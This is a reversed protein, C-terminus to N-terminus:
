AQWIKANRQTAMASSGIAADSRRTADDMALKSKTQEEITGITSATLAKNDRIYNNNANIQDTVAPIGKYGGVGPSPVPAATPAGTPDTGAAQTLANSFEVTADGNATNNNGSPFGPFVAKFLDGVGGGM